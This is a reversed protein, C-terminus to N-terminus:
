KLEVITVGSGGEGFQGLRIKGVHPHKRLFEQLGTRLAGTGKGHIISVQGYGEMFAEDLYRDISMIAEEVNQGRVDLENRVTSDRKVSTVNVNKYGKNIPKIVELDSKDVKMKLIGIQIVFENNDAQEVVTGKQGISLVKVEDGAEIKELKKPRKPTKEKIDPISEELRKKMEILRHEKIGAQEELAFKRLETIVEEAEKKAKIVIEEAKKKADDLLKHKQKELDEIKLELEKNIQEVKKRAAEAEIREKEASRRNVELSAIMSEVQLNDESIQGKAFRIIDESLGLRQAINFANSRGPVGILLRYTPRLTEIDFEVSANVVNEQNYAYAKLESYHTTAIVKAGIFKIKELIAIALAAGETPDTGAGLEDLLILSADDMEDLIKVINKMHGSFTSLSQEISQEDGIDAYVSSFVALESNEEAPVHLGSMAMLTLLGVTKLSVTKGGTNPGTIVISTFEKGLNVDIPVIENTPILPHRAKKINLVGKNNLKPQIGKMEKALEAKAQIFDIIGLHEIIITLAEVEERVVNSLNRLIREIEKEEKLIHEKLQNNIQVVVEPEIFLTAGSASQDHVIGGFLTRYEQKVPIAYRGNRITIIQDQLAKQNNSNRIIQELKEKVRSELTKINNRIIRLESSASDVIEGYESICSNIKDEIHKLDKIEEVHSYLIPLSNEENIKTIFRKVNRGGYITSSIELLQEATLEGGLSLRKLHPRIDRVGGLSFGGKLRLVEMAERTEQQLKEVLTLDNIPMLNQCLEKGLGTQAKTELMYMVKPFELIKLGRVNM